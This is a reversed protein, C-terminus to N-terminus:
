LGNVSVSYTTQKTTRENNTVQTSLRDNMADDSLNDNTRKQGKQNEVNENNM